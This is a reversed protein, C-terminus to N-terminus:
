DMVAYKRVSILQTLTEVLANGGLNLNVIKIAVMEM